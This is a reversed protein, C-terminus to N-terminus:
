WSAISRQISEKIAEAQDAIPGTSDCSMTMTLRDGLTTIALVLPYMFGMPVARWCAGVQGAEEGSYWTTPYRLNTLVATLRLINSYIGRRWGVPVWPWLKRSFRFGGLSAFYTRLQKSHQSRRRIIAILDEWREPPDPPCDINYLGLFLGGKNALSPGGSPRLDVINGLRMRRQWWNRKSRPMAAALARAAVALLVDNVTGQCSQGARRLRELADDPLALYHVNSAPLEGRNRWLLAVQSSTSVTRVTEYLHRLKRRWTFWPAFAAATDASNWDHLTTTRDITWGQCRALVRRFLDGAAMGDGMCHQWTMGVYSNRHHTMVWLRILPDINLRFPRRLESTTQRSLAPLISANPPMDIVGVEIDCPQARYTCVGTATEVVPAAIGSEFLEAEAARRLSVADIVGKIEVVDIVHFPLQENWYLMLRQFDNLAVKFESSNAEVGAM